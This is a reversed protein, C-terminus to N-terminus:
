EESGMHRIMRDLRTRISLDNIKGDCAATFGGIIAPDTVFECICEGYIRRFGGSIKEKTEDSAGPALTITIKKM